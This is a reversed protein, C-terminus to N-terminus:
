HGGCLVRRQNAFRFVSVRVAQRQRRSRSLIEQSLYFSPDTKNPRHIPLCHVRSLRCVTATPNPFRAVRVKLDEKWEVRTYSKSIAIQFCPMGMIFSALRSLSQRGSGGVGVCLMHAGPQKLVRCIRAVHEAAYLFMALNMPSKSMGNHDILYEELRKVVAPMDTLEDYLRDGGLADAEEDAGLWDGYMCHRLEEADINGDADHDLHVFLDNFKVDFHTSTLEALPFSFFLTLRTLQTYQIPLCHM